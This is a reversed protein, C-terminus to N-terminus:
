LNASTLQLLFVYAPNSLDDREDSRFCQKVPSYPAMEKLVLVSQHNTIVISNKLTEFPVTSSGFYVNPSKYKM